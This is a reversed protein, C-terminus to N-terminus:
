EAPATTPKGANVVESAESEETEESESSSSEQHTGSTELSAPEKPSVQIQLDTQSLIKFADSEMFILKVGHTGPELQSLDLEPQLDAAKLSDLDEKLGQVTVVCREPTLTYLYRDSEGAKRIDSESLSFSRTELREVRLRIEIENDENQVMEVGEPLYNRLDVKVVKDATAGQISLESAPITIKNFAALNTRLGIVSVTKTDCELGAYQYGPAATGSVEFDLNLKKVRNITVYYNVETTNATVRDSLSLRNGNADYFVLEAAAGADETLGEINIEIGVDSIQGVQSVPGEVYIHEPDITIGNLAYGEEPDGKTQVTLDFKKRQLEETAVRVVGQKAAVDDLLERNNLVEVKIPVSGTVDYLEALDIYARFDSSRIKYEDRTRVKYSVTVTNKGGLEYTQNAALLVQENEIELPVEKSGGVEPNSVNVVVLWVFFALFISLIKLGLNNILRERM